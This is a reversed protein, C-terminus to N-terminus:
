VVSGLPYKLIAELLYGTQVPTPCGFTAQYDPRNLAPRSGITPLNKCLQSM